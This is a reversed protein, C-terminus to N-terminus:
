KLSEMKLRAWPVGRTDEVDDILVLEGLDGGRHSLINYVGDAYAPAGTAFSLATAALFTMSKINM